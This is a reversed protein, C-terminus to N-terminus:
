YKLRLVTPPGTAKPVVVFLDDFQTSPIDIKEAHGLAALIEPVTNSHGIVLVTGAPADKKLRDVLLQPAPKGDANRPAYARIELKRARALPEATQRARDTETAYIGSIGANGLLQALREARARGAASLPVGPENADTAKEAHRVLLIATQGFAADALGAILMTVALRM